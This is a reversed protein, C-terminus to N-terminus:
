DELKLKERRLLNKLNQQVSLTKRVETDVFDTGGRPLTHTSGNDRV